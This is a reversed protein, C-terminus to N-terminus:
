KLTFRIPETLRVQEGQLGNEPRPPFPQASCCRLHKRTSTPWAQSHEVHTDVLRGQRDLTFSMQVVGQQRRAHAASPYRKKRELM